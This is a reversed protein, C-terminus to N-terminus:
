VEMIDRPLHDGIVKLSYSAGFSALIDEVLDNHSEVGLAAAPVTLFLLLVFGSFM